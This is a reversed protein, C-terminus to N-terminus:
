FTGLVLLGAGDPGASPVLRVTASREQSRPADGNDQASTRILRREPASAVLAAGIMMAAAGGGAFGAAAVGNARAENRLRQGDANCVPSCRADARSRDDMWVVGLYTGAVFSALGIGAVTWGVARQGDGRHDVVYPAEPRDPPMAATVGIARTERRVPAPRTAIAPPPPLPPAPPPQALDALAPVDVTVITQEPAVDVQFIWREKGPAQAAILHTGPDVPVPTGWSARDVEVGDRLLLFGPSTAADHPMIALKTVWPALAEARERAVRARPGQGRTTAEAAVERFLSWASAKRGQRQLCDALHFKTGLGPDLRQSEQFKPCAEDVHGEALLRRGEDYLAQAAAPDSARADATALLVPLAALVTITRPLAM